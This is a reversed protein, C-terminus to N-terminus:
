LIIARTVTAGLLVTTSLSHRSSLGHLLFPSLVFIMIRHYKTQINQRNTLSNVNWTNKRLMTPISRKGDMKTEFTGLPRAPVYSVLIAARLTLHEIGHIKRFFLPSHVTWRNTYRFILVILIKRSTRKFQKCKERSVKCTELGPAGKLVLFPCWFNNM